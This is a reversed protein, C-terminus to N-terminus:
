LWLKLRLKKQAAAILGFAGLLFLGLGIGAIIIRQGFFPILLFGSSLSGAISGLTSFFFVLGSVQGVGASKQLSLLKIAFPSLTGLLLSPTLFLLLSLILPGTIISLHYGILPVLYTMVLLLIFVSFGSALIIAYFFVTSPFKDALRGGFYYGLSLALLITSIVSSVTFITAGFYPSLIRVALVEVMLVAAGTLFVVFLLVNQKLWNFM